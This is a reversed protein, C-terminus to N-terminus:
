WEGRACARCRRRVGSSRDSRRGVATNVEDFLHGRICRRKRANVASPSIGRRINEANSLVALHAPRVCLRRRCAHDIVLWRPVPEVLLEYAARHATTGLYSGYGDRRRAGRWLWCGGPGDRDVHRMLLRLPHGPDSRRCPHCTREGPPLSSWPMPRGCVRCPAALLRDGAMILVRGM